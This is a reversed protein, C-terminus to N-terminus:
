MIVNSMREKVSTIWKIGLFTLHFKDQIQIYMKRWLV